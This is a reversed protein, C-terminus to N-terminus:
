VQRRKRRHPPRLSQLQQRVHELARAFDDNKPDAQAAKRLAREAADWNEAGMAVQARHWWRAARSASAIAAAGEESFWVLSGCHPCTADGPPRSAEIRLEKGCVGCTNDDGEPTRSSPQM